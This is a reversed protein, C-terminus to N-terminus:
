GTFIRRIRRYASAAPGRRRRVWDPNLAARGPPQIGAVPPPEVEFAWDDRVRPEGDRTASKAWQSGTTGASRPAIPVAQLASIAEDLEASGPLEVSSSEPRSIMARIAAVEAEDWGEDRALQALEEETMTLPPPVTQTPTAVRNAAPATQELADRIRPALSPRAYWGVSAVEMEEEAGSPGGIWLVAEESAASMEVPEMRQALVPEPAPLPVLGPESPLEPLEVRALVPEPAAEPVVAPESPLEAEASAVTPDPAVEETAEIPVEEVSSPELEASAEAAMEREIPQPAEEIPAVMAQPVVEAQLEPPVEDPTVEVEVAQVEVEELPVAPQARAELDAADLWSFDGDAFWDPEIVTPRYTSETPPESAPSAAPAVEEAHAVDETTDALQEVAIAVAAPEMPMEVATPEAAMEVTTPRPPAIEEATDVISEVALEVTAPEAAVEVAAVEAAANLIPEVPMDATGPEAAEEVAPPEAVMEVTAPEVAMEVPQDGSEAEAAAEGVDALNPDQARALAEAFGAVAARTSRAKRHRSPREVPAPDPLEAEVEAPAPPEPAPAAPASAELPPAQPPPAGWSIPEAEVRSALRLDIRAELQEVRSRLGAVEGRAEGLALLAQGYRETLNRFETLLERFASAEAGHSGGNGNSRPLEERPMPRAAAPADAKLFVRMSDGEPTGNLVGRALLEWVRGEPVGLVSAADQVSYGDMM